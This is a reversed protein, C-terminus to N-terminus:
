NRPSVNYISILMKTKPKDIRRKTGSIHPTSHPLRSFHDFIKRKPAGFKLAGLIKQANTFRCWKLGVPWTQNLVQSGMAPKEDISVFYFLFILNCRYFIIAESEAAM